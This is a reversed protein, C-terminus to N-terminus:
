PGAQSAAEREQRRAAFDDCWLVDAINIANSLAGTAASSCM